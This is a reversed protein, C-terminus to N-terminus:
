RFQEPDFWTNQDILYKREPHGPMEVLKGDYSSEFIKQGTSRQTGLDVGSLM